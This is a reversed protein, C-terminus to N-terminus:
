HSEGSKQVHGGVPMTEVQLAHTKQQAAHFTRINDYAVDFAAKVEPDLQPDPLDSLSEVIKELRVKDFKSTYERVAEDGGTRVNNVIPGVTDFISSFDIRPRAQLAKREAANLDSLRYSRLDIKVFEKEATKAESGVTASAAAAAAPPGMAAARRALRANWLPSSCAAASSSSLPGVSRFRTFGVSKARSRPLPLPLPLSVGRLRTTDLAPPSPPALLQMVMALNCAPQVSERNPGARM